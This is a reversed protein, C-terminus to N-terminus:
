NIMVMIMYCETQYDNLYADLRTVSIVAVKSIILPPDLYNKLNNNDSEM